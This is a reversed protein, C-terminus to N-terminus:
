TPHGPKFSVGCINWFSLFDIWDRRALIFQNGGFVNGGTSQPDFNILSHLVKAMGPHVGDQTNIWTVLERNTRLGRVWPAYFENSGLGSAVSGLKVFEPAAPYRESYRGSIVGVFDSEVKDALQSLFFRNESLSQGRYKLPIDLDNLNIPILYELKPLSDLISQDHSLVFLSLSM